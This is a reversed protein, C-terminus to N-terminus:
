GASEGWGTLVPQRMSNVASASMWNSLTPRAKAPGNTMTPPAFLPRCICSAASAARLTSTCNVFTSPETLISYLRMSAVAPLRSRRKSDNLLISITPDRVAPAGKDRAANAAVPLMPM